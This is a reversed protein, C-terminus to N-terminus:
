NENKKEMRKKNIVTLMAVVAMGFIIGFGNMSSNCGEEESNDVASNQNNTTSDGVTSDNPKSQELREEETLEADTKLANIRAIYTLAVGDVGDYTNAKQILTKAEQILAKGQASEEARYLSEVFANEVKAIAAAQYDAFGSKEEKTLVKDVSLKVGAVAAAVEDLTARGDILADAEGQIALIANWEAEEYMEQSLGNFFTALGAKAETKRDALIAYDEVTMVKDLKGYFTTLADQIAFSSFSNLVQEEAEEILSTVKKQEAEYYNDLDISNLEEAAAVREQAVEYPFVEFKSGNYYFAVDSKTRYMIPAGECKGHVYTASPFTTGAPISIVFGYELLVLTSRHAVTNAFMSYMLAHSNTSPNRGADWYAYLQDFIVGESNMDSFSNWYTLELAIYEEYRKHTATGAFDGEWNSFKNYDSDKLKFGFFVCTPHQTFAIGEVETDIYTIETSTEEDTTEASAKFTIGTFLSLTLAFLLVWLAFSKLQIKKLLKM